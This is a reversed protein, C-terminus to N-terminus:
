MFGTLVCMSVVGSFCDCTFMEVERACMITYKARINYVYQVRDLCVCATDTDVIDRRETNHRHTM